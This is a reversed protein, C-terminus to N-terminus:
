AEPRVGAEALASVVEAMPLGVVNTYSGRIDKVLSGGLDQIGYAGAKDLPSGTAAYAAIEDHDLRRFLVETSVTEAWITRGDRLLCCGTHVLHWRASLAVLMNEAEAVGAPKGLPRGDLDVMTDAALILRGPRGAAVLGAKRRALALALAAPALGDAQGEDGPPAVTFAYGAERLM